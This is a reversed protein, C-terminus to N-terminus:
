SVKTILVHSVRATPSTHATVSWSIFTHLVGNWGLQQLGGRMRVLARLADMHVTLESYNGYM